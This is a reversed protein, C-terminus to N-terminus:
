SIKQAVFRIVCGRGRHYVGEDLEIETEELRSFRFGAFDAKIEDLSFLSDLNDPGGIGPNKERYNLHNKSFAEFIVTGGAKLLGNLYLHYVPKLLPPFHAFILALADFSAPEYGLDPLEGLRYDLEVGNSEALKMAKARGESSIDFAFAEWGNKAAFVANRGEGEAPFLIKGTKLKLLEVEFFKNPQTGYAYEAEKYRTDWKNQWSNTTSM